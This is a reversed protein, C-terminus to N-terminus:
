PQIEFRLGEDWRLVDANRQTGVQVDSRLKISLEGPTMLGDPWCLWGEGPLQWQAQLNTDAVWSVSLNAPWILSGLEAKQWEGAQRYYAALGSDTAAVLYIRQQFAAQDCAMQMLSQVQMWQQRQQQQDRSSLSMVGVALVIAVIAVVVLLEILTFGQQRNM